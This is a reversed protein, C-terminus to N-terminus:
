LFITFFGKGHFIVGKITYNSNRLEFQAEFQTRPWERIQRTKFKFVFLNGSTQFFSKSHLLLITLSLVYKVLALRCFCLSESLCM